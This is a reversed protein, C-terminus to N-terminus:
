RVQFTALIGQLAHLGDMLHIDQRQVMRVSWLYGRQEFALNNTVQSATPVSPLSHIYLTPDFTNPIATLALPTLAHDADTRSLLPRGIISITRSDVDVLVVSPGAGTKVAAVHWGAPFGVTFPLGAERFTSWTAPVAISGIVRGTFPITTSATVTPSVPSGGAQSTADYIVVALAAVCVACLIGVAM